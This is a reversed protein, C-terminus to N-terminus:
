RGSKLADVDRQLAEVRALVDHLLGLTAESMTKMSKNYDDQPSRGTFQLQANNSEWWSRFEDFDIFGSGDADMIHMANDLEWEKLPRGLLTALDGILNRSVLGDENKEINEWADEIERGEEHWSGEIDEKMKMMAAESAKSGMEKFAKEMESKLKAYKELRRRLKVHKRLVPEMDDPHLTSVECFTRARFTSTREKDFGLFQNEGFFSGKFYEAEMIEEGDAKTHVMAMRGKTLVCLEVHPDGAEFLPELPLVSFGKFRTVIEIVADERCGRFFPIMNIINRFRHLIFDSRIKSPLLDMVKDDDFMTHTEFKYQFFSDIRDALEMPVEHFRMMAKVSRMEEDYKNKDVDMAQLTASFSGVIYAWTFTGVVIVWCCFIREATNYPLIDGFGVTSMTTLIWYAADIYVTRYVDATEIGYLQDTRWKNDECKDESDPYMGKCEEANGVLYTRAYWNDYVEYINDDKAVIRVIGDNGHLTRQRSLNIWLCAIVHTIVLVVGALFMIRGFFEMGPKSMGIKRLSVNVKHTFKRLNALKTLRFLRAFRALRALRMLKSSSAVSEARSSSTLKRVLFSFPVISLCDLLFWSQLYEKSIVKSDTILRHTAPDFFYRFM